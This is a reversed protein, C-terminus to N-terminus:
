PRATDKWRSVGKSPNKPATVEAIAPRYRTPKAAGAKSAAAHWTPSVLSGARLTGRATKALPAIAPSNKTTRGRTHSPETPGSAMPPSSMRVRPGVKAGRSAPPALAAAMQNRMLLMNMPVSCGSAPAERVSAWSESSPSSGREQALRVRRSTGQIGVRSVAPRAMAASPSPTGVHIIAAAFKV